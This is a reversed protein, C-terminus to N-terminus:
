NGHGTGRGFKNSGERMEVDPPEWFNASSDTDKRAFINHNMSEGTLNRGKVMDLNFSSDGDSSLILLEMSEEGSTSSLPQLMSPIEMGWQGRSASRNSGMAESYYFSSVSSSAVSEAFSTNVGAGIYFSQIRHIEDEDEDDGAKSEVGACTSSLKSVISCSPAEAFDFQFSDESNKRRFLVDQIGLSSQRDLATTSPVMGGEATIGAASGGGDDPDEEEEGFKPGTTSTASPLSRFTPFSSLPQPPPPSGQVLPPPDDDDDDRSDQGTANFSGGENIGPPVSAPAATKMAIIM